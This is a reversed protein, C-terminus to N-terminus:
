TCRGRPRTTTVNLRRGIAQHQHDAILPGADLALKLGQDEFLEDPAVRGGARRPPARGRWQGGVRRRSPRRTHTSLAGAAAAPEVDLQRRSPCRTFATSAARRSRAERLMRAMERKEGVLGAREEGAPGQAVSQQAPSDV